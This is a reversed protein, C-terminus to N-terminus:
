INKLIIDKLDKLKLIKNYKDKYSIFEKEAKQKLQIYEEDNEIVSVINKYVRKEEVTKINVFARTTEAPEVENVVISISKLINNAQIMRFKESATTDNWDFCKYLESAKNERAFELVNINTLESSEEIRELERGVKNADGKFGTSNWKYTM